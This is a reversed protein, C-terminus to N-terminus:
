QNNECPIVGMYIVVSRLSPNLELKYNEIIHPTFKLSPNFLPASFVNFVTDSVSQEKSQCTRPRYSLGDKNNLLPATMQLVATNTIASYGEQQYICVFIKGVRFLLKALLKLFKLVATTCM